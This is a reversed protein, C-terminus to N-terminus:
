LHRNCLAEIIPCNPAIGGECENSITTLTRELKRLDQIKEKVSQLHHITIEKVRGCDYKGGDALGLLARIEDLSFGLERSRRIFGLRKAHDSGFIRHGGATRPPPPLLGAKEYYRITEVNCGTHKSLRGISLDQNIDGM